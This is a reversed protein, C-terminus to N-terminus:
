ETLEIIEPENSEEKEKPLDIFGLVDGEEILQPYPHVIENAVSIYHLIRNECGCWKRFHETVKGLKVKEAISSLYTRWEDGVWTFEGDISASSLHIYLMDIICTIPKFEYRNSPNLGLATYEKWKPHDDQYCGSLVGTEKNYEVNFVPRGIMVLPRIVEPIQNWMDLKEMDWAPLEIKVELDRPFREHSLWEAETIQFLPTLNSLYDHHEKSFTAGIDDKHWGAFYKDVIPDSHNVCSLLANRVSIQQALINRVTSVKRGTSWDMGTRVNIAQSVFPFLIEDIIQNPFHKHFYTLIQRRVLAEPILQTTGAAVNIQVVKVLEGKKLLDHLIWTSDLGGSFAVYCVGKVESM